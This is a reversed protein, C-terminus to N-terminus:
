EELGCVSAAEAVSGSALSSGGRASTGGRPLSSVSATSLGGGADATTSRPKLIASPIHDLDTIRV